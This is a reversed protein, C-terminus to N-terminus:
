STSDEDIEDEQHEVKTENSLAVNRLFGRSKEISVRKGTFAAVAWSGMAFVPLKPDVKRMHSLFVPRCAHFAKGMTAVNKVTPLCCIANIVVLRSRLLKAEMLEENLQEGTAGVFPEGRQCEERGPSEGILVGYPNKPVVPLVPKFDDKRYFPCTDCKAGLSQLYKVSRDVRVQDPASREVEGQLNGKKHVRGTWLPMSRSDPQPRGLPASVPIRTKRRPPGGSNGSDSRPSDSADSRVPRNGGGLSKSDPGQLKEPTGRRPGSARGDRNSPQQLNGENRKAM